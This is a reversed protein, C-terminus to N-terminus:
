RPWRRPMVRHREVCRFAGCGDGRGGLAVALAEWWDADETRIGAGHVEILDVSRLDVGSGEALAQLARLRKRRLTRGALAPNVVRGTTLVVARVRAGRRVADDMRQLVLMGGAEPSGHEGAEALQVSGVLMADARHERLERVAADLAVLPATEDADVTYWPGGLGLAEVVRGNPSSPSQSRVPHLLMAANRRRDGSGGSRSPVVGSLLRVRGLVVGVEQLRGGEPEYGADRLAERALVEALDAEGTGAEPPVARRSM